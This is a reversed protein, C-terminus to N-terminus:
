KYLFQISKQNLKNSYEWHPNHGCQEIKWYEINKLKNRLLRSDSEPIIKDENGWILLCSSKISNTHEELYKFFLRGKKNLGFM